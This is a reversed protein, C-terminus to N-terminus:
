LFSEDRGTADRGAARRRNGILVVLVSVALLSGSVGAMWILTERLGDRAREADRDLPRIIELVGAVDGEKWDKKISDSHGNHCQVCTQEMRQATAYRLAPRGAFAEFRVFSKDPDRSLETLADREFDDKPGGDTRSRFPYDSYLRVQVGSEGREGLRRGLEITFTAPLPITGQHTAYDHTAEVGKLKAREVVDASYLNNVKNLIESQQAASELASTRVLYESLRSLQWLGFASGLTVAAFLGVAVPNRRCWRRLREVRGIPRARIPEGGLFRRLDDALEAATAYRRAPAKAMAKLCITELDRPVKDNLQRPPRPEDELVHLLLMRRNGRFPREGTLLEYLVVGLSYVDTRADVQHAEGRAQEPSVYAPTGLVEGVLTMPDGDDTERKALGFDILHPRGEQDLLVNSPKVDRHIVGHRHAYDLADAAEAVLEAAQRFGIRGARLRNALTLGPVFEEVMYFTGDATQGTEYLAVLGPHQLQAASRAERAFRDIEDRSALRGARLIKIAVMRDLETDRARFVHGFSGVGLEELLEFKGFPRPLTPPPGGASDPSRPLARLRDLIGAPVALTESEDDRQRLQRLLSDSVDDLAQLATECAACHEVHDALREFAPGPLTGLLFGSLEVQDPCGSPKM